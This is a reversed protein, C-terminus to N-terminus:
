GARLQRRLKRVSDQVALPLKSRMLNKGGFWAEPEAFLQHHEMFLAGAPEALRTIKTYSGASVYPQPPGLKFDRQADMHVPRWQNPHQPDATFRPDIIAAVLISDTQRTAVVRRTASLLVRDFLDLTGFCYQEKRDATDTISIGLKRLQEENIVGQTVPLASKKEGSALEVLGAFSESTFLADFKGYAVYWVDVRCWPDGGPTAPLDEIKLVFPAVIANHLLDEVSRNPGAVEEIVRRQTVADLGDAITPLALKFHSSEKGGGPVGQEVLQLLVPNEPPVGLAFLLLSSTLCNM